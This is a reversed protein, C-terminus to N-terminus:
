DPWKWILALKDQLPSRHCHLVGATSLFQSDLM